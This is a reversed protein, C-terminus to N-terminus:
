TSINKRTGVVEVYCLEATYMQNAKIMSVKRGSKYSMMKQRLCVNSYYIKSGLQGVLSARLAQKLVSAEYCM